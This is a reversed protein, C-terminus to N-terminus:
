LIFAALIAKCIIVAISAERNNITPRKEGKVGDSPLGDNKSTKINQIRGRVNAPNPM